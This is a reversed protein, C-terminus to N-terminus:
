KRYNKVPVQMMHLPDEPNVVWAYRRGRPARYNADREDVGHRYNGLEDAVKDIEGKDVLNELDKRSM